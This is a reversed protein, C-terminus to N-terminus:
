ETHEITKLFLGEMQHIMRVRLMEMLCYQMPPLSRDASCPLTLTPLRSCRSRMMHPCSMSRSARSPVEGQNLREVKRADVGTVEFGSEVLLEAALHGVKGLGLVAVKRFSM